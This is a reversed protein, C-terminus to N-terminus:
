EGDNWMKAADRALSRAWTSLHRQWCGGMRYWRFGSRKMFGRVADSPKGPFFIQTRNDEANQVIEVEGIEERTTELSELAELKALRQKMRRINANNNQLQYPAFGLRGMFDPELAVKAQAETLGDAQLALICDEPKDKMRRVHRNVRKMHEQAKEAGAIKEKLRRVAEPDDSFIVQNSEAAAAKRDYYEARKWHEVAKSTDNRIRELDRRHRRESHHGVLIPQGFPIMEARRSAANSRVEARQRNSEALEAYREARAERREAFNSRM